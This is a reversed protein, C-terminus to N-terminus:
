YINKKKLRKKVIFGEKIKNITANKFFFNDVLKYDIIKKNKNFITLDPKDKKELFAELLAKFILLEKTYIRNNNTSESESISPKIIRPLFPFLSKFTFIFSTNFKKFNNSLLLKNNNCHNSENLMHIFM